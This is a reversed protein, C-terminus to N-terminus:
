AYIKVIEFIMEFIELNVKIDMNVIDEILSEAEEKDTFELVNDYCSGLYYKGYDDKCLYKLSSADRIVYNIVV